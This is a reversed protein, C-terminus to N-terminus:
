KWYRLMRRVIESSNRAAMQTFEEFSMGSKEDAKDSIGRIVVFPVGNLYACHAIAAGEMEVAYGNFVNKLFEVKETRSIFQDGSVIPGVVVKKGELVEKSCKVALDILQRDAKFVSKDMDPIQGFRFGLATVDMDHEMLESSVVVDGVELEPMLGGAVGTNIVASVNFQDILLQTCIAANVKGVGCRVVVVDKDELKGQYFTMKAKSVRKVDSMQKILLKVEVSMAGIIGIM